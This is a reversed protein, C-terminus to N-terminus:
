RRRDGRPAADDGFGNFASRRGPLDEVEVETHRVTDRITEVHETVNKTLIVEERVVASKTVIPEERMESVEVVRDRLLGAREVEAESLRREAARTEVQLHEKKLSVQEEAQRERVITHVRAGGREVTRKGIRLEEEVRPIRAEQTVRGQTYDGALDRGTSGGVGAVPAQRQVSDTLLAVIRDPNRDSPVEGVLLYGGEMLGRRYEQEDPPNIKLGALAGVTDKALIRMNAAGGEAGLRARATEAEARTDYICTVIRSM